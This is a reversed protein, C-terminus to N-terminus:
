SPPSHIVRGRLLDSLCRDIVALAPGNGPHRYRALREEYLPLNSMFREVQEVSLRQSVAGFGLRELEGANDFQEFYGRVPIALFPKHLVLCESMLTFGATGIVARCSRLDRVFETRSFTRFTLNGVRDGRDYGYLRYHYPTVALLPPLTATGFSDYVLVHDGPLPEGATLDPSVISPVIALPGEQRPAVAALATIVYRDATTGPVVRVILQAALRYFHYEWSLRSPPLLLHYHINDVALLPLQCCRATRAVLPEFDSVVIDPQWEQFRNRIDTLSRRVSPWLRLNHGITRWYRLRNDAFHFTIGAVERCDFEDQLLAYARGYTVVHVIHGSKLFHRIVERSRVAHGAGEGSVGYVIRAM